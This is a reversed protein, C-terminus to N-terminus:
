LLAPPSMAALEAGHIMAGLKAGYIKVDLGTNHGTFPYLPEIEHPSRNLGMTLELESEQDNKMSM